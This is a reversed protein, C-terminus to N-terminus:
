IARDLKQAQLYDNLDKNAAYLVARDEIQMEPLQQKFAALLQKGADDNDLYLQITQSSRGRILEIARDKMAASNLVLVAPAPTALLGMEVASLMDMFGEFIALISGRQDPDEILTIDKPGHTGKFRASRLEYGGAENPFALAFLKRDNRTYHAEKVFARAVAQSIGRSRLYDLLGPHALAKVILEEAQIVGNSEPLTMQATPRRPPPDFLRPRGTLRELADLAEPISSLRELKMVFDLINGGAGEGFDYWSNWQTNVKFSAQSENPRLPSRYWLYVGQRRTPEFGLRALLDPMPIQKAQQTNM